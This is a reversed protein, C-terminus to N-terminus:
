LAWCSGLRLILTKYLAIVPCKGCLFFPTSLRRREALCLRLWFIRARGLKLIPTILYINVSFFFFFWGNMWGYPEMFYYIGGSSFRNTQTLFIDVILDKYVAIV